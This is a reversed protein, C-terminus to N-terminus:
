SPLHLHAQIMAHHVFEDLKELENRPFSKSWLRGIAEFMMSVARRAKPELQDQIAYM